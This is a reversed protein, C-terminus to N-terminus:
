PNNMRQTEIWQEVRTRTPFQVAMIAVVGGAIALSWWNHEIMCAILNLFAAGELMALAIILQMQYIYCDREQEPMKAFQGAYAKVIIGPVVRHQVSMLVALGAGIFSVVNGNPPHNLHGGAVVIVAFIVVGLMLAAAIIQMTRVHPTIDTSQPENPQM